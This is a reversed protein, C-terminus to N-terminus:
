DHNNMGLILWSRLSVLGIGVVAGESKAGAGVLASRQFRDIEAHVERPAAFPCTIGESLQFAFRM